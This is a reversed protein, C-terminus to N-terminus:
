GPLERSHSNHHQTLFNIFGENSLKSILSSIFNPLFVNVDLNPVFIIELMRERVCACIFQVAADDVGWRADRFNLGCSM